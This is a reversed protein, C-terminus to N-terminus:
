YYLAKQFWVCRQNAAPDRTRTISTLGLDQVMADPGYMTFNPTGQVDPSTPFGFEAYTTIYDQLAVAVTANLITASNGGNNYFTFPIDQGHYSPPVDFLYAYSTNQSAYDMYVANCTFIVETAVLAVRSILDRYGYTGSYDAPYLTNEIYSLTANSADPFLATLYTLFDAETKSFPSVFLIGEAVNHGLMYRVKKDYNGQLLLKGPLAPVFSGDVVPGYTFTGYTSRAIQLNNAVALALYPLQRAQQITSVNLLSLFGDFTDEM